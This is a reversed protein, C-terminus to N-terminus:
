GAVAGPQLARLDSIALRLPTPLSGFPLRFLRAASYCARPEAGGGSNNRQPAHHGGRGRIDTRPLDAAESNPILTEQSPPLKPGAALPNLPVRDGVTVLMSLSEVNIVGSHPQQRRRAAM